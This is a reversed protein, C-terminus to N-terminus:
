QKSVLDQFQESEILGRSILKAMAESGRDTFHVSDIFHADDGPILDEVEILLVGTSAAIERITRNYLEFGDLLGNISLYPIHYLHTQSAKLREEPSQDRRLRNSFTVLVVLDAMAQSTEVLKSLDRYFPDRLQADDYAIKIEVDQAESERALIMLNKEVLNSLLSYESLWFPEYIAVEELLGEKKAISHSNSALDNTAHYLVIVDPNLSKVREELNRTSSNITYGPVSANVYDMKQEPFKSVLQQWVLHPWTKENSSVESCFTTSGGIFAIRISGPPKTNDIEPSRFGASNIKIPGLESGAVPVRLGTKHDIEYIEEVGGLYGYKFFQRVRVTGEALLGLVLVATLGFSIILLTRGGSSLEDLKM